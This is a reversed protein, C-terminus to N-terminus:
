SPSTTRLEGAEPQGRLWRRRPRAREYLWRPGARGEEAKAKLGAEDLRTVPLIVLEFGMAAYVRRWTSLKADAGGELLSIRAQTMGTKLALEEQGYRFRCRLYEFAEDAPMTRWREPLSRGATLLEDLLSPAAQALAAKLAAIRQAYNM